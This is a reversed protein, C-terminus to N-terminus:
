KVILELLTDGYVIIEIKTKTGDGEINCGGMFYKNIKLYFDDKAGVNPM